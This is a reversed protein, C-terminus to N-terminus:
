PTVRSLLPNIESRYSRFGRVEDPGSETVGGSRFRKTCGQGESTESATGVGTLVLGGGVIAAEDDFWGDYREVRSLICKAAITTCTADYAKDVSASAGGAGGLSQPMNNDGGDVVANKPTNSEHTPSRRATSRTIVDGPCRNKQLLDRLRSIEGRAAQVPPDEVRACSETLEAEAGPGTAGAKRAKDDGGGRREAPNRDRRRSPRTRTKCAEESSSDQSAPEKKAIRGLRGASGLAHNEALEADIRLAMPRSSGPQVATTENKKDGDPTGGAATNAAAM